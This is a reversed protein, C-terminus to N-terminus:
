LDKRHFGNERHQLVTREVAAPLNPSDSSSHFRSNLCLFRSHKNILPDNAPRPSFRGSLNAPAARHGWKMQKEILYKQRSLERLQRYIEMMEESPEAM